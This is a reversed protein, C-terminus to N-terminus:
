EPCNLEKYAADTYECLAAAFEETAGLRDGEGKAVNRFIYDIALGLKRAAVKTDTEVKIQRAMTKTGLM